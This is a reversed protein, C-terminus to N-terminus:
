TKQGPWWDRIRALHSQEHTWAFEPLWATVTYQQSPDELSALPVRQLAEILRRRVRAARGLLEKWSWRRAHRVARANFRDAERMDQYFHVRHGQGRAILELREVGEEEWAVFHAFTDKVSWKGQTRPQLIASEPLRALFRLTAARSREM